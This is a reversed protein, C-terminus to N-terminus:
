HRTVLNDLEATEPWEAALCVACTVRVAELNATFAVRPRRALPDRYFEVGCLTTFVQLTETGLNGSYAARHSAPLVPSGQGVRSVALSRIIVRDTM